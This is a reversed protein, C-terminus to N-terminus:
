LYCPTLLPTVVHTHKGEERKKKEWYRFWVATSINGLFLSVWFGLYIQKAQSPLQSTNVRNKNWGRLSRLRENIKNEGKRDRFSWETSTSPTLPQRHAQSGASALGCCRSIEMFFKDTGFALLLQHGYVELHGYGCVSSNSLSREHWRILIGPSVPVSSRWYILKMWLNWLSQDNEQKCRNDGSYWSLGFWSWWSVM